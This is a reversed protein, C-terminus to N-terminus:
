ERARALRALVRGALQVAPPSAAPWALPAAGGDRVLRALLAVAAQRLALAMGGARELLAPGRRGSAEPSARSGARRDPTPPLDWPGAPEDERRDLTSGHAPEPECARTGHTPIAARLLDLLGARDPTAANALAALVAELIALTEPESEHLLNG